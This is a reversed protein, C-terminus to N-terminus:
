LASGHRLDGRIIWPEGLQDTFQVHEAAPLLGHRINQASKGAGAHPQLRNQILDDLRGCAEAAGVRAEDM